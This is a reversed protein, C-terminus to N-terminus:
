VVQSAQESKSRSRIEHGKEYDEPGPAPVTARSGAHIDSLLYTSNYASIPYPEVGTRGITEVVFGHRAAQEPPYVGRLDIMAPSRMITALRALDLHKLSDWDTMFVIADAAEACEYPDRHFVVDDFIAKAQEIGKPDYAHIEAGAQQLFEIMPIAPSERMDDTDPKFTLGLVAIRKDQVHGHLVHQVKMAMRRKRASNASVTAEVLRLTVGHEQATRVLALTDKPFCSGGYGPGAHLFHPGIRADLGVGLAVDGIDADVTECLDAMENIFTIKAALFANSAYKILEASRRRTVVIRHGRAAPQRYIGMLVSRAHESETGIVIRDPDTFDKLASGERLFEPNSAVVVPLDPRQKHFHREVMDGTGVPVTSKIVVLRCPNTVAAIQHACEFIHSLDAGGDTKNPPTGVAIFIADRGAVSSAIDTTFTLRGAAVARNTVEELGPEYIPVKGGNLMRIRDADQDVCIVSHGWDAFCAGAVLGVYGTGIVTISITQGM